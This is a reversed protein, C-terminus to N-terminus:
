AAVYVSQITISSAWVHGANCATAHCPRNIVSEALAGPDTLHKFGEPVLPIEM